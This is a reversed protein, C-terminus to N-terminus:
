RRPSPSASDGTHVGMPDINEISCIIIANDARDRVVEMEYEKWGLVTGRDASRHDPQRRPRQPRDGRIGRPQLRRRRRHRGAHLEAPHDGAPRGHRAGGAGRRPQARDGLAPKGARDPGDGRPVEAPGRGERDGRCQRRDAQRRAAGADRGQGAGARHQARDARGDDAAARGPREKEIIKAVIEPTIPEIYTADALEPDTMITAPNSNVVIVRYGEAKLAKVAQSGSYDFEAAQGIVIPGAGIILISSIDTRKPMLKAEPFQMADIFVLKLHNRRAWQYVCVRQEPTPEDRFLFLLRKESEDQILEGYTLGCGTGRSNLEDESHMRARRAAPFCGSRRCLAFRVIRVASKAPVAADCGAEAGVAGDRQLSKAAKVVKKVLQRGQERM